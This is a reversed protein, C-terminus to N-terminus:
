RLFLSGQYRCARLLAKFGCLGATGLEGSPRSAALDMTKIWGLCARAKGASGIGRFLRCEAPFGSRAGERRWTGLITGRTLTNGLQSARHSNRHCHTAGGREFGSSTSKQSGLKLTASFYHLFLPFTAIMLQTALFRESLVPTLPTFIRRTGAAVRVGPWSTISRRGGRDRRGRRMPSVDACSSCAVFTVTPMTGDSLHFLQAVPFNITTINAAVGADGPLYQFKDLLM